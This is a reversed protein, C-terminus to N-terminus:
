FKTKSSPNNLIGILIGIEVVADIITQLATDQLGLYDQLGFHNIVILIFSGWLVPSLLRNQKM